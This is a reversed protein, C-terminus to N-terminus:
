RRARSRATRAGGTASRCSGLQQSTAPPVLQEATTILSTQLLGGARPQPRRAEVAPVHFMGLNGVNQWDFNAAIPSNARAAARTEFDTLFAAEGTTEWLEAAAWSASTTTTATATAAPASTRRTPVSRVPTRRCSPTASVRPRWAAQRRLRRRLAPLHAGGAGDGRRLRATAATGVPTFYRPSSTPRPCSSARSTLATLKHPVGGSGDPSPM